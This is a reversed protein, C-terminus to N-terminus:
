SRLRRPLLPALLRSQTRFSRYQPIRPLIRSSYLNVFVCFFFNSNIISFIFRIFIPHLPPPFFLLVYFYNWYFFANPTHQFFLSMILLDIPHYHFNQTILMKRNNAAPFFTRIFLFDPQLYLICNNIIKVM